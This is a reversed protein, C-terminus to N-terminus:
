LETFLRYGPAYALRVWTVVGVDNHTTREVVFVATGQAVGLHEAEEPTANAASFAIDGHTLPVNAVLWENVSLKQLDVRAVEPVAQPNLWRAEYVFPRDDAFHLTRIKLGKQRSALALRAAIAAPPRGESREVVAFRYTQGRGEVERRIIPIDVTARRVPTAAVRTGAKRRREVLGADALARMARNVTTRACGLEEALAQEGPVREGPRWDRSRIRRLLEGRVDEWTRSGRVRM